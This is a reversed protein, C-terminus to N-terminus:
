KLKLTLLLSVRFAQHKIEIGHGEREGGGDGEEEGSLMPPSLNSINSLEDFGTGSSRHFPTPGSGGM